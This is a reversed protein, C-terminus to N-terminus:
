KNLTEHLGYRSTRKVRSQHSRIIQHCYIYKLVQTKIWCVCRKCCCTCCPARVPYMSLLGLLPRWPSTLTAVYVQHLGFYLHICVIITLCCWIKVFKSEVCKDVTGPYCENVTLVKILAIQTIMYQIFTFASSGWPREFIWCGLLRNLLKNLSMDLFVDFSRIM